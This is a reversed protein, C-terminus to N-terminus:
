GAASHTVTLRKMRAFREDPDTELLWEQHTGSAMAEGGASVGTWELDVQVSITKDANETVQVNKPVYAGTRGAEPLSVM